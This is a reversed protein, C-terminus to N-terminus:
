SDSRSGNMTLHFCNQQSLRLRSTARSARTTAQAYPWTPRAILRGTEALGYPRADKRWDRRQHDRDYRLIRREGMVKIRVFVQEPM